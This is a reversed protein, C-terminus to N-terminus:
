REDAPTQALTGGQADRPRLMALELRERKDMFAQLTGGALTRRPPLDLTRPNVPRNDDLVEYHLNPGTAVGTAGVYGIVEGQEVTDGKDLGEAFGSLHAYATQLEADHRIRVYNGFSGNRGIRVIKGDGAAVIPTGRTAAFDLGEHMRTYGLIPHDRKGFLSSLRANRVPTSSLTTEVSVGQADYYAATGDDTRFRYIALQRDDQELTAALLAGLHTGGDRHRFLEFALGVRDGKRLERQFDVRNSLQLYAKLLVPQPVGAEVASEYFSDEITFSLGTVRRKHPLTTSRATYAGDATRSVEIRTDRGQRITFRELQPAEASDTVSYSVKQGPHLESPKMLTGVATSVRHAQRQPLGVDETLLGSLTDGRSITLREMPATSEGSPRSQQRTAPREVTDGDPTEATPGTPATEGIVIEPMAPIDSLGAYVVSEPLATAARPSGADSDIRTSGSIEPRVLVLSIVFGTLAFIVVTRIHM